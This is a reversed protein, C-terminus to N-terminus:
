IFFTNPDKIAAIIGERHNVIPLKPDYEPAPLRQIRGQTKKASQTCRDIVSQLLSDFPKGKALNIRCARLRHRCWAADVQMIGDLMGELQDLVKGPKMESGM